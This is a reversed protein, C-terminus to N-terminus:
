EEVCFLPSSSFPRPFRNRHGPEALAQGVKSLTSLSRNTFYVDSLLPLVPRPVFIINRCVDRSLQYIICSPDLGATVKMEQNEIQTYSKAHPIVLDNPTIGPSSNSCPIVCVGEM